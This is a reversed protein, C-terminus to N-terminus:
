TAAPDDPLVARDAALGPTENFRRYMTQYGLSAMAARYPSPYVLALRFPADKRITGTEAALYRSAEDNPRAM